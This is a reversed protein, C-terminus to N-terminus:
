LADKNSDDSSPQGSTSSMKFLRNTHPSLHHTVRQCRSAPPRHLTWLPWSCFVTISCLVAPIVTISCLLVPIVTISCLLVPIVTISGLLVSHSPSLVTESVAVSGRASLYTKKALTQIHHRVYSIFLLTLTNCSSIKAMWRTKNSPPFLLCM